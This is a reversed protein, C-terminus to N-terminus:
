QQQQQQHEHQHVARRTSTQLEHQGISQLTRRASCGAEECGSCSGKDARMTLAGLSQDDTTATEVERWNGADGNMRVGPISSGDKTQDSIQYEDNTKWVDTM